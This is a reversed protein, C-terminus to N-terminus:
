AIDHLAALEAALHMEDVVGLTRRHGAAELGFTEHDALTVETADLAAIAHRV